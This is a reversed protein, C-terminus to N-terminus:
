EQSKELAELFTKRWWHVDHERIRAMLQQHRAKREALPMQLAQQISSAMGATDYPNVLLAEKLQEAAGAFRSLVLVGPDDPDQAVVFEKAV